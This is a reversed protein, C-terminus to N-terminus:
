TKEFIDQQFNDQDPDPYTRDELLKNEIRYDINDSSEM